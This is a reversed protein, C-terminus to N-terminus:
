KWRACEGMTWCSNQLRAAVRELLNWRETAVLDHVKQALDGYDVTDELRDGRQRCTSVRWSTSM